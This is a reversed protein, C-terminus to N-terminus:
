MFSEHKTKVFCEKNEQWREIQSPDDFIEKLASILELVVPKEGNHRLVENMLGTQITKEMLINSDHPIIALEHNAVTPNEDSFKCNRVSLSHYSACSMPRVKYVSCMGDFLLPCEVVTTLHESHSLNKVKSYQKDIKNKLENLRDNSLYLMAHKYIAIVEFVFASVRLSCCYTCKPKCDIQNTQKIKNTIPLNLEQGLFKTRNSKKKASQYKKNFKVCRDRFEKETIQNNLIM